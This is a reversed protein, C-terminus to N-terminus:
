FSSHRESLARELDKPSFADGQVISTCLAKDKDNLKDADRFFAHAAPNTQHNAFHCICELGTRGTAGIVLVAQQHAPPM